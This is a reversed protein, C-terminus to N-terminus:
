VAGGVANARRMAIRREIEKRVAVAIEGADSANREPLWKRFESYFSAVNPIQDAQAIRTAESIREEDEPSRPGFHLLLLTVWGAFVEWYLATPEGGMQNLEGFHRHDRNLVMALVGSDLSLSLAEEETGPAEIRWLPAESGAHEELTPVLGGRGDLVVSQTPGLDGLILGAYPAYSTTGPRAAFLRATVNVTGRMTGPPVSFSLSLDEALELDTLSLERSVGVARRKSSSSSWVLALTVRGGSAVTPIVSSLATRASIRLTASIELAHDSATWESAEGCSWENEGSLLFSGRRWAISWDVSVGADPPLVRYGPQFKRTM